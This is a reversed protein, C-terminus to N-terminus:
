NTIFLPPHGLLGGESALWLFGCACLTTKESFGARGEAVRRAHAIQEAVPDITIPYRAGTEQVNLRLSGGDPEFHAPLIKGDADWVKLNSYHLVDAGGAEQFSVDKGGDAIRPTLTGRTSIKFSLVEGSNGGAPREKM